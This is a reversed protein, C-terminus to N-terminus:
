VLSFIGHQFSDGLPTGNNQQDNRSHGHQRPKACVGVV